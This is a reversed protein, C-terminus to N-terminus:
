RCHLSFLENISCHHQRRVAKAQAWKHEIPKLDPSYPPLFEVLHGHQTLNEIISARKHFAANDMVVISRPPLKPVLDQITWAEFIDSNIPGEFLCVTLLRRGLLAGIVNTRRGRGWNHQGYCRVGKLSYGHTRPMDHAFGSEDLYVIPCANDHYYKM